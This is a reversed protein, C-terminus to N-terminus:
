GAAMVWMIHAWGAWRLFQVTLVLEWFVDQINQTVFEMGFDQWLGKGGIGSWWV